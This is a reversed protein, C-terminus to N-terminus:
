KQKYLPKTLEDDEWDWFLHNGIPIRGNTTILCSFYDIIFDNQIQANDYNKVQIWKKNQKDLVFHEGTVYIDQDDDNIKYLCEKKSNDIKLVAFVKGGNELESGLPINEMTYQEGNKLKIMTNPHFCSGIAQILQGPPGTWFSKGTKITGDLIYVMTIVVGILKGVMDKISITLKTFQIILNVFVGFVKDVISTIFGRLISFFERIFNISKLFETALSGLGGLIYNIPQLLYGMMNIQTNQVCYTFDATVNDSFIWYPPNCRYIPWNEKIDIASRLFVMITSLAVFGLNIYLFNLYNGVTPM